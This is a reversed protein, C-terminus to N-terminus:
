NSLIKVQRHSQLFIHDIEMSKKLNAAISNNFSGGKLILFSCTEQIHLIVIRLLSCEGSGQQLALM